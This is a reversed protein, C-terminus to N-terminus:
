GGEGGRRGGGGGRGESKTPSVELYPLSGRAAVSQARAESGGRGGGGRLPTALAGMAMYPFLRCSMEGSRTEAPRRPGPPGGERLPAIHDPGAPPSTM